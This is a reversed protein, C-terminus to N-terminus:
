TGGMDASMKKVDKVASNIEKDNYKVSSKFM